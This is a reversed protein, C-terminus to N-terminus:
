YHLLRSIESVLSLVKKDIILLKCIIKYICMFNVINIVEYYHTPLIKGVRM